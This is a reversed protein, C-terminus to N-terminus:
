VNTDLYKIPYWFYANRRFFVVFLDAVNIATGLDDAFM